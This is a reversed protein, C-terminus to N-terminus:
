WRVHGGCASQDRVRGTSTRNDACDVSANAVPVRRPTLTSAIIRSSSV